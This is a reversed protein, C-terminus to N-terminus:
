ARAGFLCAGSREIADKRTAHDDDISRIMDDLRQREEAPLRDAFMDYMTKAYADAKEAATVRRDLNTEVQEPLKDAAKSAAILDPDNVDPKTTALDRWAADRAGAAGPGDRSPQAGDAGRQGPGSRGAPGGDVSDTGGRGPAAGADDPVDRAPHDAATDRANAIAEYRDADEIIAREYAALVDREGERHVIEVTRDLLKPDIDSVKLGAAEFEAEVHGLVVHKEQEPDFKTAAEHGPKYLKQGRNEADLHDLLDRQILGLSTRGGAGVTGNDADHPDFMYGHEKASTLADDLGMGSKRILPGFGPVFPGRGGYIAALEPDPRLGGKSALHENLSLTDPHAAARGRAKPKTVLDPDGLTIKPNGATQETFPKPVSEGNRDVIEIHKDDFVVFNRTGEGAGRSGQDLYKIGPIGTASLQGSASVPTKDLDAMRMGASSTGGGQDPRYKVLSHYIDKGTQADNFGAAGLRSRVHDSQEGLPKDWDLFHERSAKVKVRYMNGVARAAAATEPSVEFAKIDRLAANVAQHPYDFGLWDDKELATMLRQEATTFDKWNGKIEAWADDPSFGEDYLQSVKNVFAKDSTARQYNRAVTENEAFYLGHGYTQAGEGTGVRSLDFREFEHPSGHWADFSEAIRPDTEAAAHLMEGVKVPEGDVISAIAGRMSDEQARPPLDQLIRLAQFEGLVDRPIPPPQMRTRLEEWPTHSELPEGIDYPYLPREARSRWVDSIAGGGAHLTGGLAAGFVLNHLVDAMGFDRGDQTHAYWDLPELAAQGVVGSAAGVGARVASRSALNEGAGALIKAYRLEGMVPIFSSAVNLPDIAGVLFSTVTSGAWPLVGQPGRQMTTERERRDRARSIMIDLVPAAIADQDPLKLDKELGAAKVREAAEVKGLTPISSPDVPVFGPTPMGTALEGYDVDRGAARDLELLGFLQSTPSDALTDAVTAGISQGFSAAYDTVGRNPSEGRLGDTFIPM